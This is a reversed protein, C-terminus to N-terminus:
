GRLLPLAKVVFQAGVNCSATVELTHGKALPAFAIEQGYDGCYVTRGDLTVQSSNRVRHKITSFTVSEVAITVFKASGSRKYICTPGLPAEQPTDVAGGLIAGAAGQSVLTCPNLKGPESGNGTDAVGPNDDNIEAGGTGDIPRHVVVGKTVTDRRAGPGTALATSQHAPRADARASSSKETASTSSGGGCANLLLTATVLLLTCPVTLTPRKLTHM